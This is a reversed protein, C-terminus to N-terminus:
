RNLYELRFQGNHMAVKTVSAFDLHFHFAKELPMGLLHAVLSRIVGGHTCVIYKQPDKDATLEAWFDLVRESLDNFSEGRPPRENVFDQMWQNLLEQDIHTWEKEEWEGFAM